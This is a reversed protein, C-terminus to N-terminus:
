CLIRSDLMSGSRRGQAYIDGMIYVQISKEARDSQNICIADAWVQLHDEHHRMYRLAVKLSETVSVQHGNVIINGRAKPDGWCYSLATFPPPDQNLSVTYLQCQIEDDFTGALLTLFRVNKRDPRLKSKSYIAEFATRDASEQTSDFNKERRVAGCDPCTVDISTKPIEKEM